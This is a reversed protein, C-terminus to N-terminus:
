RSVALGGLAALEGAPRADRVALRWWARHQEVAQPETVLERGTLAGGSDFRMIILRASDLLWWDQLPLGIALAKSRPLYSIREGADIHWKDGWCEWQQYVSPPESLVRVREVRRGQGTLDRIVDLWEQWWDYESPPLPSGAAFRKLADREESVAYEPQAELRRATSSFSSLMEGFEADSLVTV